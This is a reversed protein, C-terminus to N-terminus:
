LKNLKQFRQALDRGRNTLEVDPVRGSDDVTVLGGEECEQITEPTVPYNQLTYAHYFTIGNDDEVLRYRLPDNLRALCLWVDISETRNPPIRYTTV